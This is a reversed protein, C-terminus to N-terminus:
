LKPAVTIQNDRNLQRLVNNAEDVLVELQQDQERFSDPKEHHHFYNWRVISYIPIELFVTTIRTVYNITIDKIRLLQLRFNSIVATDRRLQIQRTTLQIETMDCTGIWIYLTIGNLRSLLREINHELWGAIQKSNFGSKYWFKFSPYEQIAVDQIYRGKSDSLM